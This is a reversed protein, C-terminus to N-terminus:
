LVIQLKRYTQIPGKIRRKFRIDVSFFLYLIRLSSYFLSVIYPEIMNLFYYVIFSLTYFYLSVNFASVENPFDFFMSLLIFFTTNDIIRGYSVCKIYQPCSLVVLQVSFFYLFLTSLCAVGVFDWFFFQCLDPCSSISFTVYM